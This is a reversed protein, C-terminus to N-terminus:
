ASEHAAVTDSVNEIVKFVSTWENEDLETRESKMLDPMKSIISVIDSNHNPDVENAAENFENYYKKFLDTNLNSVGCTTKREIQLILGCVSLGKVLNRIYLFLFLAAYAILLSYVNLKHAKFQLTEYDIIPSTIAYTIALLIINSICPFFLLKKDKLIIAVLDKFLKKGRQNYEIGM